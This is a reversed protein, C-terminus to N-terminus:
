EEKLMNELACVITLYNHHTEKAREFNSQGSLSSRLKKRICCWKKIDKVANEVRVRQQNFKQRTETPTEKNVIMNINIDELAPFGEDGIAREGATLSKSVFPFEERAIASDTTNGERTSSKWRIKKTQPSVAILNNFAHQKKKRSFSASEVILDESEGIPREFGDLILTVLYGYLIVGEKKREEFTGLTVYDQLQHSLFKSM